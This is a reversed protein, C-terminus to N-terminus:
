AASPRAPRDEFMFVFLEIEKAVQLGFATVPRYKLIRRAEKMLWAKRRQCDAQAETFGNLAEEALWADQDWTGDPKKGRHIALQRLDSAHRQRTRYLARRRLFRKALVLMLSESPAFELPLGRCMTVFGIRTLHKSEEQWPLRLDAMTLYTPIAWGVQECFAALEDRDTAPLPPCVDIHVHANM